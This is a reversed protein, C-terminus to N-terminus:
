ALHAPQQGALLWEARGVHRPQWVQIQQRAAANAGRRRALGTRPLVLRGFVEDGRAPDSGRGLIQVARRELKGAASKARDWAMVFEADQIVGTELGILSNAIKFTSFPSFRTRCRAANYRLYRNQKLDYLVFCGETNKFYPRLDQASV